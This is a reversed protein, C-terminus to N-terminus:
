VRKKPCDVLHADMETKRVLARCLECPARAFKCKSQHEKRDSYTGKWECGQYSCKIRLNNIQLKVANDPFTNTVDIQTRDNPCM